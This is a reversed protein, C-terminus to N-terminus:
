FTIIEQGLKYATIIKKIKIHSNKKEILDANQLSNVADSKSIKNIICRYNIDHINLIAINNLNISAVDIVFM